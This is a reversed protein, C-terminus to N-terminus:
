DQENHIEKEHQTLAPDEVTFGLYLLWAVYCIYCVALVVLTM